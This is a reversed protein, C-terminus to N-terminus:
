RLRIPLNKHEFESEQKTVYFYEVRKEYEWLPASGDHDM